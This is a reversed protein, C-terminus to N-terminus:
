LQVVETLLTNLYYKSSEKQVNVCVPSGSFAKIVLVGIRVGPCFLTDALGATRLFLSSTTWGQM